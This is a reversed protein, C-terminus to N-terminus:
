KSPFGLFWRNMLDQGPFLPDPGNAQQLLMRNASGQIVASTSPFLGLFDETCIDISLLPQCYRNYVAYRPPM